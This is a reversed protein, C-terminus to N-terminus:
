TGGQNTFLYGNRAIIASYTYVPVKGGRGDSSEWLDPDSSDLEIERDESNNAIQITLYTLDRPNYREGDSSPLSTFAESGHQSPDRKGPKSGRVKVEYIIKSREQPTPANTDEVKVENGQDDFYRKPLLYFGEAASDEGAILVDFDTEQAESVVRQFIQAATSADM